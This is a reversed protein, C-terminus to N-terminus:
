VVIAPTFIAHQLARVSRPSLQLDRAASILATAGRQMNVTLGGYEIQNHILLQNLFEYLRCLLEDPHLPQLLDKLLQLLYDETRSKALEYREELSLAPFSRSVTLSVTTISQQHFGAQFM